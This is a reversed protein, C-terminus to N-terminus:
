PQQCSSTLSREAFSHANEFLIARVTSENYYRLLTDGLYELAALDHLDDPLDAGDMDCGLALARETGRELFYEIHRIVDTVSAEGDTKLFNKYLNIGIVGGRDLIAQIQGDRLNRSVPCLAYANSHSAIVPRRCDCAIQFLDDASTESAHSIDLIMGMECAKKMASRGFPTLGKKTDHSGGICTEGCWLPTLLRFGLQWLEDVRDIRGDLIRADEVSLLLNRGERPPASTCIKAHGDKVTPDAFLNAHIQKLKEWGDGDSLRHHTWFAMVQTYVAYREAKKMSVALTNNGLPQGSSLMAEATDCHLDFISYM